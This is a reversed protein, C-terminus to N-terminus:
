QLVVVMEGCVQNRGGNKAAYLAKDARAFLESHAEGQRYTAAGVSISVPLIDGQYEFLTRDVAECIRRALLNAGNQDTKSLTIVFEDGAYRFLMDTSRGYERMIDAIMKLAADGAQHGFHDNVHKFNDVDIILLSFSDGHRETMQEERVLTQELMARNNLGTLPDQFASRLANRYMLSNKLPQLVLAVLEEIREIQEEAFRRKRMITLTGLREGMLSLRYQLSSRATVGVSWDVMEVSNEYRLGDHAVLLQMEQSFITLLEALDLTTQLRAVINLQRTTDLQRSAFGQSQYAQQANVTEAIAQNHTQAIM